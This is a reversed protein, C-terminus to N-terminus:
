KVTVQFNSTEKLKRQVAVNLIAKSIENYLLSFPLGVNGLLSRIRQLFNIFYYHVRVTIGHELRYIKFVEM